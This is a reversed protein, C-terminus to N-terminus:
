ISLQYEFCIFLLCKLGKKSYQKWEILNLDCDICNLSDAYIVIKFAFEKLNENYLSYNMTDNTCLFTGPNFEPMKISANIIQKNKQNNKFNCSSFGIIM